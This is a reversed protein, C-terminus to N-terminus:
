DFNFKEGRWPLPNPNVGISFIRKIEMLLFTSLKKIVWNTEKPLLSSRVTGRSSISSFPVDSWIVILHEKKPIQCLVPQTRDQRFLLYKNKSSSLWYTQPLRGEQFLLFTQRPCIVEQCGAGTKQFWYWFKIKVVWGWSYDLEILICKRGPRFSVGTPFDFM